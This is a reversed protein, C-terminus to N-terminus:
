STTVPLNAASKLSIGEYSLHISRGGGLRYAVPEVGTSPVMKNVSYVQVDVIFVSFVRMKELPTM